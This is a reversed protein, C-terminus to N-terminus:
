YRSRYPYQVLYLVTVHMCPLLVDPLCHCQGTTLHEGLYNLGDGGFIQAGAKFWTAEGFKIGAFKSLLEPTLIGLAGLM